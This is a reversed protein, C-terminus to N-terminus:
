AKNKFALVMYWGISGFVGLLIFLMAPLSLNSELNQAVLIAHAITISFGIVLVFAILRLLRCGLTYQKKANEATIKVPYNFIHPFRCLINFLVFIWTSMGLIAILTGKSGFGNPEGSLEFHTPVQDPIDSFIMLLYVWSAVLVMASIIELGYDLATKEAKVKPRDQPFM